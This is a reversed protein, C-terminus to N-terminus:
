ALSLYKDSLERLSKKDLLCSRSARHSEHEGQQLAVM